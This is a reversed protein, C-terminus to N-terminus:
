SQKSISPMSDPFSYLIQMLLELKGHGYGTSYYRRHGANELSYFAGMDSADISGGGVGQHSSGAANPSSGLRPNDYWRAETTSTMDM